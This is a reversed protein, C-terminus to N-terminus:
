LMGAYITDIEKVQDIVGSVCERIGTVVPMNHEIM